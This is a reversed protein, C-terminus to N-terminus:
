SPEGDELYAERDMGVIDSRVNDIAELIDQLRESLRRPNRKM